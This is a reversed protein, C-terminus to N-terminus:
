SRTDTIIKKLFAKRLKHYRNGQEFLKTEKKSTVLMIVYERLLYFNHFTYVMPLPALCIEM